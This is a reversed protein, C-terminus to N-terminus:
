RRRRAGRSLSNSSREGMSVSMRTPRKARPVRWSTRSAMAAARAACGAQRASPQSARMSIRRRAASRM